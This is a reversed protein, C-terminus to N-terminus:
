QYVTGEDDDRGVHAKREESCLKENLFEAQLEEDLYFYGRNEDTKFSIFPKQNYVSIGCTITELVKRENCNKKLYELFERADLQASPTGWRESFENLKQTRSNPHITSSLGPTVVFRLSNIDRVRNAIRRNIIQGNHLRETDPNTSTRDSLIGSGKGGGVIEIKCNRLTREAYADSSLLTCFSFVCTVTLSINKM